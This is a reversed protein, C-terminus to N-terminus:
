PSSDYDSQQYTPQRCPDGAEAAAAAVRKNTILVISRGSAFDRHTAVIQCTQDHLQNRLKEWQDATTVLFVQGPHRLLNAAARGDPLTDVKHRTYFVLSPQYYGSCAVYFDRDVQHHAIETALTKPAKYDDVVVPGFGALAAVLAVSAGAIAFLVPLREGQRLRHWAWIAAAVPLLGVVTLPALNPMLRNQLAPVPFVGAVVLLGGTITVGVLGFVILSSQLWGAAPALAGGVWRVLFRATLLALVPYAPLVYNPLKTAAVSFFVVWVALWCWLFRYAPTHSSGLDQAPSNPFQENTTKDNSMRRGIAFWLAPALFVSWPAFGVLMVLPHYFVSGAHGELPQQFRSVNHKYFFGRLFEWKTEFGVYLYWPAAVLAVLFLGLLLKGTLLTGFRREWILFLGIAAAPLAVGVPGKALVALGTSLGIAVLWFRSRRSDFSWFLLMTLLTLSILLADPTVAHSSVCFMISSALIVGALVGTQPDFMRRGLEYVLLVSTLGCCVSGFRAAWEGVGFWHYAAGVVWYLLVPKDTRLVFNFTPICWDAADSMERVCEANHAEDIDWLSHAGLNPLFLLCGVGLLLVYHAIRNDSMRFM